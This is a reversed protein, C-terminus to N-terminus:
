TAPTPPYCRWCSYVVPLVALGIGGLLGAHYREVLRGAIPAIVMTALPWPTLLLGTAVEDRGLVTQLFFPLSVMALM